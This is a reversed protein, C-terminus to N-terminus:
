VFSIDKEDIQMIFDCFCKVVYAMIIATYMIVAHKYYYFGFSTM